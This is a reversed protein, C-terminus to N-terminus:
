VCNVQFMTNFRDLHDVVARIGDVFTKGGLDLNSKQKEVFKAFKANNQLHYHFASVYSPFSEVFLIDIKAAYNALKLVIEGFSRTEFFANRIQAIQVVLNRHRDFLEATQEDLQTFIADRM